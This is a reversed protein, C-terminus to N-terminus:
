LRQYSMYQFQVCTEPGNAFLRGVQGIAFLCISMSLFYLLVNELKKVSLRDNDSIEIKKQIRWNKERKKKSTKIKIVRKQRGLKVISLSSFSSLFLQKWSGM